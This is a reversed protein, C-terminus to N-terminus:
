KEGAKKSIRIAEDTFNPFLDVFMKVVDENANIGTRRFQAHKKLVIKPNDIWYIIEHGYWLNIRRTLGDMMDSTWRYEIKIIIGNNTKTFAKPYIRYFSQEIM